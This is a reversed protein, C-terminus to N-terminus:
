VLDFVCTIFLCMVIIISVTPYSAHNCLESECICMHGTWDHEHMCVHDILYMHMELDRTCTRIIREKDTYHDKVLKVCCGKCLQINKEDQFMTKNFPDNCRFDQHSDCRYCPVPESHRCEDESRAFRFQHVTLFTITFLFCSLRLM